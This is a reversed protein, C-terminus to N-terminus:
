SKSANENEKIKVSTKVKEISEGFVNKIANYQDDPIEIIEGNKLKKWEDINESFYSCAGIAAIRKATRKIKM